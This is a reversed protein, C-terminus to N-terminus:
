KSALVNELEQIVKDATVPLNIKLLKFSGDPKILVYSPFANFQVKKQIDNTLQESALIHTGNLNYYPILNKWVAVNDLDNNSVYLYELDKEKFHEKIPGSDEQLSKRCPTCWTGWLDMLVTKGKVLTLVDKFTNISDPNEILIMEKTLPRSEQNNVSEVFPNLYTIYQSQPFKTKFREFIEPVDDRRGDMAGAFLRGYLYAAVEGTFYKNIIREQLDNYNGSKYTMKEIGVYWENYFATPDVKWKDTVKYLQEFVYSNLISIPLNLLGPNNLPNEKLLSDELRQWVHYNRQFAKGATNKQTSKFKFYTILPFYQNLLNYNDTFAQTPNYKKVYVDVLKQNTGNLNLIDAYVAEPLSDKVHNMFSDDRKFQQILPQNNESGKGTVVISPVPSSLDAAFLISDGPSILLDYQFKWKNALNEYKLTIFIPKQITFKQQAIGNDVNVSLTNKSFLVAADAFDNSLFVVNGVQGNKFNATVFAEQAIAHGFLFSLLFFTAAKKM